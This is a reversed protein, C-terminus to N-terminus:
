KKRAARMVMAVKTWSSRVRCGSISWSTADDDDLAATPRSM